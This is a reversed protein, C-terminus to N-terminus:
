MDESLRPAEISNAVEIIKPAIATRIQADTLKRSSVSCQVCAVPRGDGDLIPAAVAIENMMNQSDTLAYGDAAAREIESSLITRDTVTKATRAEVRWTAIAAEREAEPLAAIMARGGATSLAPIRRGTITAGLATLQTPIRIIYVIDEGVLRACNVREDLLHSLEILKPMALQLLPDAWLYASGLELLRITPRFRRTERNKALYGTKHLTNTLRQATSKDFGTLAAIDGLGLETRGEGFVSLVKLGKALSNVFLTDQRRPSPEIGM